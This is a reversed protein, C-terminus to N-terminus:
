VMRGGQMTRSFMVECGISDNLSWHVILKHALNVAEYCTFYKNHTIFVINSANRIIKQM